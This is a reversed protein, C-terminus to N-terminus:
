KVCSKSRGLPLMFRPSNEFREQGVWLVRFRHLAAGDRGVGHRATGHRGPPSRPPPSAPQGGRRPQCRAPLNRPAGSPEHRLVAPARAAAGAEAGSRRGGGDEVRPREGECACACPLFSSAPQPSATDTVQVDARSFSRSCCSRFSEGTGPLCRTRM